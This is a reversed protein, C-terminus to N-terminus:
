ENIIEMIKQRKLYELYHLRVACPSKTGKDTKEAMKKEFKKFRKDNIYKFNLFSVCCDDCIHSERLHEPCLVGTEDSNFKLKTPVM